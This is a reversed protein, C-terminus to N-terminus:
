KKWHRFDEENIPSFRVMDGAKLLAPPDHNPNFLNLPSCGIIQWGGPSVVPYIGTQRQAIGVSGEPIETRPTEKRPTELEEPLEGMYPFGPTFGIMYVHYTNVTHLRIVEEPTIKHYQAVWELDPGYRGGYVVPIDITEPEPLHIEMVKEHMGDIWKKLARVNTKLPQYIVLISRYAPVIDVIGDLPNGELLVTLASVRRNIEPNIKDGLEVILSCDGMIRYLPKDYHM